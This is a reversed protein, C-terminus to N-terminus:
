RRRGEFSSSFTKLLQLIEPWSLFLFMNWIKEGERRRKSDSFSQTLEFCKMQNLDPQLNKFWHSGTRSAFQGALPGCLNVRLELNLFSGSTWIKELGLLSMFWKLIKELELNRERAGFEKTQASEKFKRM